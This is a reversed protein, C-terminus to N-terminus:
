FIVRQVERAVTEHSHERVVTVDRNCFLRARGSCSKDATERDRRYVFGRYILCEKNKQSRASRVQDEDEPKDPQM